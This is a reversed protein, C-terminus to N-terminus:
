SGSSLKIRTLRQILSDNKERVGSDMGEPIVTSKITPTFGSWAKPNEEPSGNRCFWVAYEGCVDSYLGQYDRTNFAFHTTYTRLWNEFGTKDRLLSDDIDPANGYSDFWYGTSTLGTADSNLDSTSVSIACWHSGGKFCPDYNVVFCFGTRYWDKKPKPLEDSCYVGVFKKGDLPPHRSMWDVLEKSSSM